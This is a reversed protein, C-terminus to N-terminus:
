SSKLTGFLSTIRSSLLTNNWLHQSKSPHTPVSPAPLGKPCGVLIRWCGRISFLAAGTKQVHWRAGAVTVDWCSACPLQIPKWCNVVSCFEM